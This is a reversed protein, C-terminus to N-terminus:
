MKNFLNEKCNNYKYNSPLSDQFTTHKRVLKMVAKVHPKRIFLYFGEYNAEDYINILLDNSKISVFLSHFHERM